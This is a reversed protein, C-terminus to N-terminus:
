RHYSTLMQSATIITVPNLPSFRTLNAIPVSRSIQVQLLHYDWGRDGLWNIATHLNELTAVAMVIIGGLNLRETCTELIATLNGGSGGIFIRDPSPLEALVAPAQGHIPIINNVQLRQCNQKILSSGIATKEIAYVRNTPCLRAIEIAVSGTGAGIDWIIQQPQLQLEGLIILRIERKTMLGPRDSFSLFTRDPLGLLPLKNIELAQSASQRLLVVVNLAAFNASSLTTLKAVEPASFYNIKEQESGLNECIYFDYINPLDLSQYLSAIATPNNTPDTLIAIKGVGRQLLDILQGLDRGHVSVIQADQWPVKLRNFAMQICNLHPYFTLQEAPFEQLLLRGLGFFLPDGSVLFVLNDQGQHLYERVKTITQALDKIVLRQASHKPFYSLHRDSGILLTAEAIIQRVKNTLGAAGDLGIGIVNITM